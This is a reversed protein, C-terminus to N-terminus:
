VFRGLFLLHGDVNGIIFSFPHDATFVIQKSPAMPMCLRERRVTTAAAESGQENVEIFAKHIVASVVLDKDGTIKSLDAMVPDFLDTMGLSSLTDNLKFSQEIKFKPFHVTVDTKRTSRILALLREGSLEKEFHALGDREKPLFAFMHLDEGKYPMGLVQVDVDEAYLFKNKLVMMDVQKENNPGSYFTNKQTRSAYFQHVWDGNFYIANILVLRTTADLVGPGLLMNIHKATAHSVFDNIETAVSEPDTTFDVTHLESRYHKSLVDLFEPVLKFDKQAYLRNAAFLHYGDNPESLWQRIEAFRLHVEEDSLGGFMVNNMQTKTKGDVGAYTMALAIAISVPSLFAENEVDGVARMLDLAFQAQTTTLDAM